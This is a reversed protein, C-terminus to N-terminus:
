VVHYKGLFRDGVSLEGESTDMSDGDTLGWENQEGDVSQDWWAESGCVSQAELDHSEHYGPHSSATSEREGREAAEENLIRLYADLRRENEMVEEESDMFGDEYDTNLDSDAEYETPVYDGDDDSEADSDVPRLEPFFDHRCTPCTGHQANRQV